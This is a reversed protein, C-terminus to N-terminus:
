RRMLVQREGIQEDAAVELRHEAADQRDLARRSRTSGIRDAARTGSARARARRSGARTRSATPMSRRRRRSTSDIYCSDGDSYPNRTWSRLLHPVVDEPAREALTM